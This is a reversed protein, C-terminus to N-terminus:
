AGGKKRAKIIHTAVPVGDVILNVAYNGESTLTLPPVPSHIQLIEEDKPVEINMTVSGIKVKTKENIFDTVIEHKGLSVNALRIYLNFPFIQAPYKPPVFQDFIGAIGIKGNDEKWTKDASLITLCQLKEM